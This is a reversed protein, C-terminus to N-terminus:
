YYHFKPNVNFHTKVSKISDMDYPSGSKEAAKAEAILQMIEESRSQLSEPINFDFVWWELDYGNKKDGNIPSMLRGARFRVIEGGFSLAYIIPIEPGSGGIWVMFIDRERDITWRSSISDSRWGQISMVTPDVKPKDSEPIEENVFAM